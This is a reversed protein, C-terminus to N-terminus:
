NLFKKVMVQIQEMTLIHVLIYDDGKTIQLFFLIILSFINLQSQIVMVMVSNQSMYFLLGHIKEGISQSNVAKVMLM